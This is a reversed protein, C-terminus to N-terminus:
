RPRTWLWRRRGWGWTDVSCWRCIICTPCEARRSGESDGGQMPLRFCQCYDGGGAFGGASGGTDGIGSTTGGAAAPTTTAGGTAEKAEQLHKNKEELMDKEREMARTRRESDQLKKNAEELQERLNEMDRKDETASMERKIM